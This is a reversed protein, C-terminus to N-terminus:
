QGRPDVPGSACHLHAQARYPGQEKRGRGQVMSAQLGGIGAKMLARQIQRRLAPM